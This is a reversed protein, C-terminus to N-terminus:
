SARAALPRPEIAPTPDIFVQQVAAVARRVDRQLEDMVSEVSGTSLADALELRAAVLIDEPGIQMTLLESVSRVAPHGALAQEIALRDEATASEGILMRKADRGIAYAVLALILGIVISALADWVTDHTVRVLV